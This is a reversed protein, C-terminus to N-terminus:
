MTRFRMMPCIPPRYTARRWTVSPQNGAIPCLCGPTALPSNRKLLWWLNAFKKRIGIQLRLWWQSLAHLWPNLALTTHSLSSPRYCRPSIPISNLSKTHRNKRLQGAWISDLEKIHFLVSVIPPIKVRSKLSCNDLTYITFLHYTNM